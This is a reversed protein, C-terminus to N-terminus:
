GYLIVIGLIRSKVFTCLPFFMIKVPDPMLSDFILDIASPIPALSNWRVALFIESLSIIKLLRSIEIPPMGSMGSNEFFTVSGSLILLM